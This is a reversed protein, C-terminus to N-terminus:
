RAGGILAGDLRVVAIEMRTVDVAVLIGGPVFSSPRVGSSGLPKADVLAVVTSGYKDGHDPNVGGLASWTWAGLGPHVYLLDLYSHDFSFTDVALSTGKRLPNDLAIERLGMGPGSVTGYHANRLDVVAWMSRLPVDEKLDLTATGDHGGVDVVVAWRQIRNMYAHPMPVQAIGFFVAASGPTLGSATVMHQGLTVTLDPAAAATNPIIVLITGFVAVFLFSIKIM